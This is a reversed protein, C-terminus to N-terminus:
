PPRDPRRSRLADYQDILSVIRGSIPIGKGGLGMPYGSGDFKEHHTLSIERGMVGIRNIHADSDQDKYEAMRVLTFVADDHPAALNKKTVVLQEWYHADIHLLFKIKEALQEHRDKNTHLFYKCACTRSKEIFDECRATYLTWNVFWCQERRNNYAPCTEQGCGMFEWCSIENSPTRYLEPHSTKQQSLFTLFTDILREIRMLKQETMQGGTQRERLQKRRQAKTQGRVNAQGGRPHHSAQNALDQAAAATEEAIATNHQTVQDIQSIGQRVESVGQAQDHSAMSIEDVLVNVRDVSRVIECLREATRGAIETGRLTKEEHLSLGLVDKDSIIAVDTSLDGGAIALAQDKRVHIINAWSQVMCGLAEMDNRVGYVECTKGDHGAM